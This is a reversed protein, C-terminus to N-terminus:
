VVIEDRADETGAHASEVKEPPCFACCVGHIYEPKRRDKTYLSHGCGPCISTEGSPNLNHDVSVREDFVYCTGNWLSESQPIDELYKLIGGELHYVNEFGKAKMYATSKECRIGGTCFMAVKKHKKPDFNKEIFEPLSMFNETKPDVAGEFTGLHVEYENRTDILITEPDSILENWDQPKVYEGADTAPNVPYGIKIIEAKHKVKTREFAHGEFHSTKYELNAFRPDKALFAKLAEANEDLASITGNIGEPSVLITGKIDHDIMFQKLVPQFKACDEFAVFKYFALITYTTM